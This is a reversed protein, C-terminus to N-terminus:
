RDRLVGRGIEQALEGLPFSAGQSDVLELPAHRAEVWKLPGARREAEARIAAREPMPSWTLEHFSSSRRASLSRVPERLLGRPCLQSLGFPDLADLLVVDLIGLWGGISFDTM